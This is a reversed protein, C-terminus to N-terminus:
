TKNVANIEKKCFFKVLDEEKILNYDDLIQVAHRGMSETAIM